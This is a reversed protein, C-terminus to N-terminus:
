FCEENYKAKTCAHYMPFKSYHKEYSQLVQAIFFTGSVGFFLQQCIWMFIVFAFVFAYALPNETTRKFMNENLNPATIEGVAGKYVEISRKIFDSDLQAYEEPPATIGTHFVGYIKVFGFLSVLVFMAYAFCESAIYFIM